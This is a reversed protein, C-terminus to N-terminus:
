HPYQYEQIVNKYIYGDYSYTSLRPAKVRLEYIVAPGNITKYIGFQSNSYNFPFTVGSSDDIYDEFIIEVPDKLVTNAKPSLDPKLDMNLILTNKFTQLAKSQLFVILGDVKSVPDIQLTADHAARHLGYKLRYQTTDDSLRDANYLEMLIFVLSLALILFSRRM